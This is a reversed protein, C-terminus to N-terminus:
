KKKVPIWIQCHNGNEYWEINYKKALQYELNNIMWDNFIQNSLAQIAEPMEGVCEFKAWMMKPFEFVTLGEPVPGDLYKGAIMYQCKQGNDTEICVGYEGIHYDSVITKIKESSSLFVENWYEPIEKFSNDSLFEKSFGIVKFSELIEVKYKM